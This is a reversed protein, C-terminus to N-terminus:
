KYAISETFQKRVILRENTEGRKKITCDFIVTNSEKKSSVKINEIQDSILNNTAIGDVSYTLKYAGKGEEISSLSEVTVKSKKELFGSGYSKPIQIVAEIKKLDANEIEQNKDSGTVEIIGDDTTTITIHDATRIYQSIYDEIISAENNLATQQNFQISDMYFQNFFGWLGELMIAFLILCACMELLTFGEEQQKMRRGEKM